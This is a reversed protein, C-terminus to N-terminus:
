LSRCKKGIVRDFQARTFNWKPDMRTRFQTWVTDPDIGQAMCITRRQSLSLAEWAYTMGGEFLLDDMPMVPVARSEPQPPLPADVPPTYEMTPDPREPGASYMTCGTLLMAAAAVAAVAPAAGRRANKTKM